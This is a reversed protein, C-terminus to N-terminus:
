RFIFDIIQQIIEARGFAIGTIRLQHHKGLGIGLMAAVLNKIRVPHDIALRLINGQKAHNAIGIFMGRLINEAGIM